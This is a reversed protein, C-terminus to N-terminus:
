QKGLIMVAWLLPLYTISGVFLARASADNRAIAFRLALAFQALGLALVVVFSVASTIPALSIPILAAAFLAAQHGSRVGSPDIVTLMPFGAKGYDDRYLWAIAMFHPFQWLFLILFLALSRRDLEIGVASWGILV